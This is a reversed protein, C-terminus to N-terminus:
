SPPRETPLVVTFTSGEGPASTCTVDGGLMTALRKCIALGLGTGEYKRTLGTDIQRFPLFLVAQDTPSIGPGTDIVDVRVREPDGTAELTVSGRETFKVANSLLNIVIQEFRRADSVMRPLPASIKLRLDLEKRDALPKVSAFARELSAQPAFPDARVSMQGAEIKSIDLVDNILELLHKASGRVMGMQKAQEANLPGALGQLLIGTFGIISNLPTRLEHSMTALFASKIRDAAEAARMAHALAAETEKLATIDVISGVVGAPSGDPHYIGKVSYLTQHEQGDAFPMAAEHRITSGKATLELQEEQYRRRDQDSLYELELVSKGLIDRRNVGFAQEYARNVGLFRLNADKYFVPNPLHDIIADLFHMAEDLAATRERVKRELDANIELLAKEARKRATIDQFVISIGDPSPYIRNEFWADYPPYYEEFQLEIGDRMAREYARHFPRGVGDPFETWIHKGILDERRRGFIRAARENVYTFHWDRDLAVFADTVSELIRDVARRADRAEAEARKRTSIDISMVFIGEPVPQCRLDFWTALGDAYTFLTEGHLPIRETMCRRMLAFVETKEIGPWMEPLTRGLLESNPRRNHLAATDNLHLYTWDFSLLQCGEVINEITTRFREESKRLAEENRRRESVDIGMGVLCEKGQFTVRRGTFYYPTRTGDKATFAAEAWSDGTAFVAGIRAAVVERDEGSFFDLPHMTAIEAASYKSVLEFNRNWRLFRGADDYFYVIGPMSEIMAASFLRENEALAEPRSGVVENAM